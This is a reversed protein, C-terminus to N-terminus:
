LEGVLGASAERGHSQSVEMAALEFPLGALGKEEEEKEFVPM